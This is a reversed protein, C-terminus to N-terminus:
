KISIRKDFAQKLRLKDKASVRYSDNVKSITKRIVFDNVPKDRLFVLTEDKFKVYCECLLWSVAMNVYYKDSNNSLIFDFIDSLYEEKVYYNLLLVFGLRKSFEYEDKLLYSIFSIGKDNDKFIKYSSSVIDCIAWNDIKYVFKKLYCIFLDYDKICGLLLGYILVVEYYDDNVLELLKIFDTKSIRKVLDKIVPVRIGLMEYKTDVIKKNFLRYEEEKISDLYSLLKKYNAKNWKFSNM